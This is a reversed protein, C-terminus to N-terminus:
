QCYEIQPKSSNEFFAEVDAARALTLWNLRREYLQKMELLDPRTDRYFDLFVHRLFEFDVRQPCGPAQEGEARLRRLLIRRACLLRPMDLFVVTDARELRQPLTRLYNGEIVWLDRSLETRLQEDFDGNAVMEWGPKWFLHDLHVTPLDFHEGFRRAFTSKGAGGNGVVLVRKM